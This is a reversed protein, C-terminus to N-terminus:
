VTLSIYSGKAGSLQGLLLAHTENLLTYSTTVSWTLRRMGTLKILTKQHNCCRFPIFHEFMGEVEGCMNM